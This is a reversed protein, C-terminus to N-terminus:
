AQPPKVLFGEVRMALESGVVIKPIYGAAGSKMALTALDTEPLGSYLVLPCQFLRSHKRVVEVVKDGSVAPMEVDVLVVDPRETNMVEALTFPSDLMVVRWGRRGFVHEVLERSSANDDLIVLTKRM